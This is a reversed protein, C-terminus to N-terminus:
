DRGGAGVLGSEAEQDGLGDGGCGGDAEESGWGFGELDAACVDGRPTSGRGRYTGEIERM